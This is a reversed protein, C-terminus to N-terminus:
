EGFLEILKAELTPGRLNKAIIVGEPDVMVTFPIADVKYLLAAESNFYKIDSVQPYPLGDAEIAGVWDERTRDFSVGFVTFGKDNYKNYLRVVNPNEERCPRCWGAWFDILVYQGRYDSLSLIEGDPNPLSIDPAVAGVALSRADDVMRGLDTVLVSNPFATRLDFALSDMFQFDTDVNFFNLVLLSAISPDNSYILNKLANKKQAEVNFYEDRLSDMKDGDGQQSAAVFQDNLAREKEQYERIIVQMATFLDTDRSGEIKAKDSSESADLSVKVDEDNLVLTIPTLDFVRLLFLNPQDLSVITEFSNKNDLSITDITKLENAELAQLLILGEKPNKIEGSLTIELPFTQQKHETEQSQCAVFILLSLISLILNKM